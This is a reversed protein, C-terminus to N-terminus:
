RRGGSDTTVPNDVRALLTFIGRIGIDIPITVVEVETELRPSVEEPEWGFTATEAQRTIFALPEIWAGAAFDAVIPIGAGIIIEAASATEIIRVETGPGTDGGALRTRHATLVRIGACDIRAIRANTADV